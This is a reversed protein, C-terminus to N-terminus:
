CVPVCVVCKIGLHVSTDCLYVWARGMCGECWMCLYKARIMSKCLDLLPWVTWGDPVFIPM